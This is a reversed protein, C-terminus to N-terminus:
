EVSDTLLSLFRSYAKRYDQIIKIFVDDMPYLTDGTPVKKTEKILGFYKKGTPVKKMELKEAPESFRNTKVEGSGYVNRESDSYMDFDGIVDVGYKNNLYVMVLDHAIQENSIM